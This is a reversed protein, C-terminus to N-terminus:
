INQRSFAFPVKSHRSLNVNPCTEVQDQEQVKTMIYPVNSNLMHLHVLLGGKDGM